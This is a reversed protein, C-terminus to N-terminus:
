FREGTLYHHYNVLKYSLLRRVTCNEELFLTFSILKMIKKIESNDHKDRLSASRKITHLISELHKSITPQIQLTKTHACKISERQPLIWAKSKKTGVFNDEISFIYKKKLRIGFSLFVDDVSLSFCHFKLFNNKSVM